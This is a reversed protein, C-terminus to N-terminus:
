PPAPGTVRLCRACTLQPPAVWNEGSPRLTTMSRRPLPSRLQPRVNPPETLALMSLLAVCKFLGDGTFTFVKALVASFGMVRSGPTVRRELAAAWWSGPGAGPLDGYSRRPGARVQAGRRGGGAHGLARLAREPFPDRCGHVGRRRHEDNAHGAHERQEHDLPATPGAISRFAVPRLGRPTCERPPISPHARM